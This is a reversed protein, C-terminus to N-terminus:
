GKKIKDYCGVCFVGHYVVGEKDKAGNLHWCGGIENHKIVINKGCLECVKTKDEFHRM